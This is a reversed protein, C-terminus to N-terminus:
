FCHYKTPQQTLTVCLIRARLFLAHLFLHLWAELSLLSNIFHLPHSTSTFHLHPSTPMINTTHRQVRSEGPTNGRGAASTHHGQGLVLHRWGVHGRGDLIRHARVHPVAADAVAAHLVPAQGDGATYHIGRTALRPQQVPLQRSPRVACDQDGQVGDWGGGPSRRHPLADVRQHLLLPELPHGWSAWRLQSRACLLRVRSRTPASGEGQLCRHGSKGHKDAQCTRRESLLTTVVGSVCWCPRVNPAPHPKNRHLNLNLSHVPADHLGHPRKPCLRASHPATSTFSHWPYTMDHGHWVNRQCDQSHENSHTCPCHTGCVGVYCTTHARPGAWVDTGHSDSPSRLPPTLSPAHVHQACFACLLTRACAHKARWSSSRARVSVHQHTSARRAAGM